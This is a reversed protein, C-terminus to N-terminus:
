NRITKAILGDSCNYEPFPTRSYFSVRGTADKKLQNRANFLMDQSDSLSWARRYPHNKKAQIYLKHGDKYNVVIDEVLIREQTDPSAIAEMQVWEMDDEYLLRVVWHLAILRQYEDGQNSYIASEM